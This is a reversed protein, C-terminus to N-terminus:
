FVYSIIGDKTYLCFLSIAPLWESFSVKQEIEKEILQFLYEIFPSVVSNDEEDLLEFFNKQSIYGTGNHDM